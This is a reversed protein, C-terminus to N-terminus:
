NQLRMNNTEKATMEGNKLKKKETKEGTFIIIQLM